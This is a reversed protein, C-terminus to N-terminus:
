IADLDMGGIVRVVVPADKDGRVTLSEGYGRDRGRTSLLYRIMPGDRERAIAIAVDEIEDLITNRENEYVDMVTPHRDIYSRATHWACGVRAAIATVNGGTGPIADIFQQATYHEGM